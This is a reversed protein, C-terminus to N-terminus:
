VCSEPSKGPKQLLQLVLQIRRPLGPVALYGSYQSAYGISPSVFPHPKWRKDTHHAAPLPQEQGDATM